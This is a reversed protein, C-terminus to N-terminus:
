IMQRFEKNEQVLKQHQIQLTQVDASNKKYLNKTKNLEKKLSSIEAQKQHIIAKTDKINKELYEKDQQKETLNKDIVELKEKNHNIQEEVFIEVKNKVTLKEIVPESIPDQESQEEENATELDFEEDAVGAESFQKQQAKIAAMKGKRIAGLDIIPDIPPPAQYVAEEEDKIQEQSAEDTQSLSLRKLHEEKMSNIEKVDEIAMNLFDAVTDISKGGELLKVVVKAQDSVFGDKDMKTLSVKSM